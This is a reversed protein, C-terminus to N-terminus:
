GARGPGAKKRVATRLEEALQFRIEKVEPADPISAIKKLFHNKPLRRVEALWGPHDVHVYLLSNHLVAPRTHRAIQEGAVMAWHDLLVPPVPAAAPEETKLVSSLIAQISKEERLERPPFPDEIRFREREREWRLRKEEAPKMCNGTQLFEM